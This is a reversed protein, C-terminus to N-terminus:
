CWKMNNIDFVAQEILDNTKKDKLQIILKPNNPNLKIDLYEYFTDGQEGFGLYGLHKMLPSRSEIGEANIDFYYNENNQTAYFLEFRKYNTNVKKSVIVDERKIIETIIRQRRGEKLSFRQPPNEGMWLSPFQRDFFRQYEVPNIGVKNAWYQFNSWLSYSTLDEQHLHKDFTKLEEPATQNQLYELISLRMQAILKFEYADRLAEQARDEIFYLPAKFKYLSPFSAKESILNTKEFHKYTQAASPIKKDECLGIFEDFADQVLDFDPKEDMRMANGEAGVDVGMFPYHLFPRNHIYAAYKVVLDPQQILPNTDNTLGGMNVHCGGETGGRHGYWWNRYPVVNALSAANFLPTMIKEIQDFQMPPTKVEICGPDMTIIFSQSGDPYFTEYQMHGWIDESEKFSGGQTKILAQTLELMKERKAPTDSTATFGEDSWWQEITFTQEFGFTLNTRLDLLSNM